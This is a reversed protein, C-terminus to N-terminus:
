AQPRQRLETRRLVDVIAVAAPARYRPVLARLSNRYSGNVAYVTVVADAIQPVSRYDTSAALGGFDIPGVTLRASQVSDRTLPGRSVARELLEEWTRMQVYGVFLGPDPTVTWAQHNAAVLDTSLQALGPTPPDSWQAGEAVVWVSREAITSLPGGFVRDSYSGSLAIWQPSWAPTSGASVLPAFQAAPLSAVIVRCGANRLDDAARTMEPATPAASTSLTVIPGIRFRLQGQALKVGESVADGVGSSSVVACVTADLATGQEFLYNIGSIAHTQYTSMVPLLVRDSAWRGEQTVPSAIIQQARLLPAAADTHTGGPLTVFGLVNRQQASVEAATANPDDAVERAVIRIPYRGAIGGRRNIAGVRAEIGAQVAKSSGLTWTTNSTIVGLTITRGDFGPVVSPPM